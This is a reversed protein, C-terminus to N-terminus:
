LIYLILLAYLVEGEEKICNDDWWCNKEIGHRKDLVQKIM